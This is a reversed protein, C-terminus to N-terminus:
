LRQNNGKGEGYQWQILETETYKLEVIERQSSQRKKQTKPEKRIQKLCTQLQM